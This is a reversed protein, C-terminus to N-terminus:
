TEHFRQYGAQGPIAALYDVVSLTNDSIIEVRIPGQPSEGIPGCFSARGAFAAQKNLYFEIRGEETRRLIVARAASRIRDQKILSRLTALFSLGNGTLRVKMGNDLRIRQVSTEPFINHLSRIVKDEDETPNVPTEVTIRVTM